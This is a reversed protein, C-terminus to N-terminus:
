EDDPEGDGIAEEEGEDDERAVTTDAADAREVDGLGQVSGKLTALTLKERRGLQYGEGDCDEEEFSPRFQCAVYLESAGPREVETTGSCDWSNAAFGVPRFSSPTLPLLEEPKIWLGAAVILPRVNLAPLVKGKGDFYARHAGEDGFQVLATGLKEGIKAAGSLSFSVEEGTDPSTITGAASNLMVSRGLPNVILASKEAISGGDNKFKLHSRTAFFSRAANSVRNDFLGQSAFRAVEGEDVFVFSGRSRRDGRPEVEVVGRLKDDICTSVRLKGDRPGEVWVSLKVPEAGHLGSTMFHLKKGFDIVSSAAELHCFQAAVRRLAHAPDRLRQRMRCAERSRPRDRRQSMLLKGSGDVAVEEGAAKVAPTPELALAESIGLDAMTTVEVQGTLLSSGTEILKAGEAKADDPKTDKARCGFAALLVWPLLM